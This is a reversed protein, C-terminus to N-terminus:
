NKPQLDVSYGKSQLRGTLSLGQKTRANDVIIHDPNAEEVYNMVHEFDAHATTAYRTTNPISEDIQKGFPLDPLSDYFFISHARENKEYSKKEFSTLFQIFPWDDDRKLEADVTSEDFINERMKFNYKKYVNSLRINKESSQLSIDNLDKFQSVLSMIEQLKGQHAHIVVPQAGRGSSVGNLIIDQLRDKFRREVSDVDSIQSYKPHGHTSDIILTNIKEPPIDKPTIDGSYVIKKGSNAVIEIQSAGLVHESEYFTIQEKIGEHSIMKPTEYDLINIQRKKIKNLESGYNENHVAELLDRTPKSMYVRGNYLCKQLKESHDSHMHSFAFVNREYSHGDVSFLNGMLIAGDNTISALHDSLKFVM